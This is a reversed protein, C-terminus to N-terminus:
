RSLGTQRAFRVREPHCDLMSERISAHFFAAEPKILQGEYRPQSAKAAAKHEAASLKKSEAKRQGQLVEIEELSLWRFGAAREQVDFVDYLMLGLDEAYGRWDRDLEAARRELASQADEEWEFDAAFERV